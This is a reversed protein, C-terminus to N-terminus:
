TRVQQKCDKLEPAIPTTSVETNFSSRQYLISGAKLTASDTPLIPEEKRTLALVM